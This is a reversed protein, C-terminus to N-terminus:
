SRFLLYYAAVGIGTIIIIGCFINYIQEETM